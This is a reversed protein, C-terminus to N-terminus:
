RHISLSDWVALNDPSANNSIVTLFIQVKKGTYDDLDIEFSKMTGDCVKDWEWLSARTSPDGDVMLDIRYSVNGNGCSGNSNTTLGVRGFLLDGGNVTYNPFRGILYQDVGEAPYTALLIGSIRGGELFQQDLLAVYPDAQNGPDDFNVIEDGLDVFDVPMTGSAWAAEDARVNFDLMMGAGEVVNIKVWFAKSFAGVGFGEGRVNRLKWYGQYVGTEQPAVLDVSVDLTEGPLITQTTLDKSTPGGMIDGSEFYLLYGITWPCSGANELRWTKTFAEGPALDMEDPVTVDKVFRVQDCPVPTGNESGQPTLSPILGTDNSAPQSTEQPGPTEPGATSAPNGIGATTLQVAVTQAAETYLAGPKSQPHDNQQPLSCGGVGVSLVLGLLVVENIVFWKSFRDM